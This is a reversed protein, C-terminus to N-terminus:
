GHGGTDPTRPAPQGHTEQQTAATPSGQHFSLQEDHGPAAGAALQAADAAMRAERDARADAAPGPEPSRGTVDAAASSHVEGGELERGLTMRDDPSMSTMIAGM